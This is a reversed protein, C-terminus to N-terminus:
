GALPGLVAATVPEFSRHALNDDIPLVADTRGRAQALMLAPDNVDAISLTPLRREVAAGAYGHDALVLDPNRRQRELEDLMAEALGSRHTHMLEGGSWACTVGDLFRIGLKRDDQELLDRTDDLPT